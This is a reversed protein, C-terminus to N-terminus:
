PGLAPLTLTFTSGLGAGASAVDLTGGNAQALLRALALGSGLGARRRGGPEPAEWSARFVDELRAPEIGAGTDAVEVYVRDGRAGAGITVSGGSPTFKIANDLVEGLVQELRDPDARVVLPAEEEGLGRRVLALGSRQAAEARDEATQFALDRLSVEELALELRGERARALDLLSSVVGVQRRANREIAEIASRLRVPDVPGHKLVQTWGLIPTLPARLEHSLASLLEDRARDAGALRQSLAEVEVARDHADLAARVLTALGERVLPRRLGLLRAGRDPVPLDAEGAQIALVRVEAGHAAALADLAERPEPELACSEVLVVGVAAPRAERAQEPPLAAAELGEAGLARAVAQSEGPDDLAVLITSATPAKM